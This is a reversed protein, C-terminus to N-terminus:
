YITKMFFYMYQLILPNKIDNKLSGNSLMKIKFFMSNSYPKKTFTKPM